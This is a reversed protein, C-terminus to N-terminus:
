DEGEVSDTFEVTINILKSTVGDTVDDVRVRCIVEGTGGELPCAGAYITICIQDGEQRVPTVSFYESYENEVVFVSNNNATTYITRVGASSGDPFVSVFKEVTEVDEPICVGPVVVEFEKTMNSSGNTARLVLTVLQETDHRNIIANEGDILIGQGSLVEWNYVSGFLGSQPLTFNGVTKPPVIVKAVDLELKETDTLMHSVTKDLAEEIMNKIIATLSEANLPTGENGQEPIDYRIEEAVFSILEGCENREVTNEEIIYKKRNLNSAVRDKFENM